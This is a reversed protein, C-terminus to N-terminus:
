RGSRDLGRPGLDLLDDASDLRGDVPTLPFGTSKANAVHQSATM